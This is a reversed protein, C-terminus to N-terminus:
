LSYFSPLKQKQAFNRLQPILNPFRGYDHGMERMEQVCNEVSDLNNKIKYMASMIGTRDQGAMCHIFVKQGNRKAEEIISFFNKIDEESPGATTVIPINHYKMGLDEVVKKEEFDLGSAYLTRFNIVVDFKQEKLWKFQTESDPQAGRSVCDDIKKFNNINVPNKDTSEKFSVALIKNQPIFRNITLM